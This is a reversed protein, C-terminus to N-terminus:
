SNSDSSGTNEGDTRHSELESNSNQPGTEETAGEEAATKKEGNYMSLTTATSLAEKNEQQYWDQLDDMKKNKSAIRQKESDTMMQFEHHNLAARSFIEAGAEIIKKVRVSDMRIGFKLEGNFVELRLNNECIHRRQHKLIFNIVENKGVFLARVKKEFIRSIERSDM